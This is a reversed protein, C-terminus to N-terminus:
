RYKLKFCLVTGVLLLTVGNALIIPLDGEIIGYVLWLSIGFTIIAYMMLSIDKTHHTRAIKLVQPVFSATTIAGAAFGLVTIWNM